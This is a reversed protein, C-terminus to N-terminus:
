DCYSESSFNLSNSAYAWVSRHEAVTHRVIKIINFENFKPISIRYKQVHAKYLFNSKKNQTESLINM